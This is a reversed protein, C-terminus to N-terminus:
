IMYDNYLQLLDDNELWVQLERQLEMNEGMALQMDVFGGVPANVPDFPVQQGEIPAMAQMSGQERLGQVLCRLDQLVKACDIGFNNGLSAEQEFVEVAFRVDSADKPLEADTFALQHLLVIVAANFICHSEQHLLRKRPSLERVWRGLALNRRATDICHRVMATQFSEQPESAINQGPLYRDAVTRKVVM